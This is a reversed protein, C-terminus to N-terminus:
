PSLWTLASVMDGGRTLLGATPIPDWSLAEFTNSIKPDAWRRSAGLLSHKHSHHATLTAQDCWHFNASRRVANWGLSSFTGDSPSPGAVSALTAADAPTDM